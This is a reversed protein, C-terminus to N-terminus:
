KLPNRILRLDTRGNDRLILRSYNPFKNFIFEKDTREQKITRGTAQLGGEAYLKSSATYGNFRVIGGYLKFYLITREFDEAYDATIKIKHNTIVGYLGGIIYRLDTTITDKKLSRSNQSPNLGWIGYNLRQLLNFGKNAIKSLTYIRIKKEGSPEGKYIGTIDDDMYLIREGNKFYKNMFNRAVKLGPKGVVVFKIKTDDIVEKYLKLQQNTAVFIYIQNNLKNERITKLTKKVIQQPRNYSPIAIKYNM